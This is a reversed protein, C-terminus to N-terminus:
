LFFRDSLIMSSHAVLAGLGVNHGILLLTSCHMQRKPCDQIYPFKFESEPLVCAPQLQDVVGHVIPVAIRRCTTTPMRCRQSARRSSIASMSFITAKRLVSTGWHRWSARWTLKGAAHGM